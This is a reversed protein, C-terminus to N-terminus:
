KLNPANPAQGDVGDDTIDTKLRFYTSLLKQSALELVQKELYGPLAFEKDLPNKCWDEDSVEAQGCGCESYMIENPVDEEFLAVLRIAKVAPNSVYLYGDNTIWYYEEKKIIPLKLLNIYRNITIEKLKKGQGSMANISYVGQIVYQYNGESIRPLKFKSRAVTCPDAYNCCESIPVEVMELCPITTFVTDTAWLKRLNTERKILMLSNNRIESAIARDTILSDTSLIKHVSRVDSVLKRLTAM